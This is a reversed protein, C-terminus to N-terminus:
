QLARGKSSMRARMQRALAYLVVIPRGGHAYLTAAPWFSENLLKRPERALRSLFRLRGLLTTPTKNIESLHFVGFSERHRAELLWAAHGRWPRYVLASHTKVVLREWTRNPVATMSRAAALERFAALADLAIPRAKDAVFRDEVPDNDLEVVVRGDDGKRYSLASGHDACLLVEFLSKNEAYAFFYDTIGKKNSFLLGTKCHLDQGASLLGIYFGEISVDDPLARRIFDQISGKWGCDVLALTNSNLDVGFGFIYERLNERQEKRISEYRESFTQDAILRKFITSSAFDPEIHHPDIQLKSAIYNIEATAFGLSRCFDHLSIRRYQAFLGHFNESPLPGLSAVYCARRSALIYHTEIRDIDDIAMADQYIDFMEKLLQGERALFFLHKLGRQRASSYLRETFLMLAPVAHRLHSAPADQAETISYVKSFLRDAATVDAAATEYFSVQEDDRIQVAAIGKSRAMAVDSHPNDGFMTVEAAGVGLLDLVRDFLRGSRKSAMQDCSVFLADYLERTIGASALLGSLDVSSLYFDSIFVVRKGNRRADELAAIVEKKPRLVQREVALEARLAAQSFLDSTIRAPLLGAVALEAHLEHAMDAHRFEAEGHDAMARRGLEREIHQRRRYVDLGCVHPLGLRRVLRDAALIKVHEPRISREVLTDFVDLAITPGALRCTEALDGTSIVSPLRGDGRSSM